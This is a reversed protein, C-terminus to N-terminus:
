GGAQARGQGAERIMRWVRGPTFPMQPNEVGFAALADAVANTVAALSGAVGAEGCGKTGLPNNLSPVPVFFTDIFPLDDARPLAYDMFSGTLPQGDADFVMREMLVQGIGQAVGGHVQGEVLLPNVINGFDDAAAYRVIEIKGTEPDLEIEVVHVGNPFSRGALKHRAAVDVLDERGRRRAEAVVELLPVFRNGAALRFGGDEFRLAEETSELLEAAIPRLGELLRDTATVIAAGEATLSRSGGTGGGRPIIDSDGMVVRIRDIDIGLRESVIQAFATEHGQGTSQTGVHLEVTGDEGFRIRAGESPDGLVAEIYAAVGLGRVKGRAASAAKRAAYGEVFAEAAATELLRAFDGVDYVEGGPTKWPLAERPIVNRRRIEFPDLGLRRAAEDMLREIDLNAEPRGAGRYADVPPTNTFVGRMRWLAKEVRYVGTMVRTALFTQINQGFHSNYAGLDCIGDVRYALLRGEADFAGEVTAVIGRGGTDSLFAESRSAQWRVPAGLKRAAYAVLYYEPFTFIKMGFGGGVDPTVVHVREAEWGFFDAIDERIRWVGQSGLTIELREGGAIPRAWAGRTELPVPSVRHDEVELRIRHAAEAFAAEVAEADGLAWDFALNDPAEEHLPEGGPALTVHAPLEDIELLVAEAGDAAAEPTDAVVAAVIEGVHRVREEAMVPRRPRASPTGDRNDVTFIAPIANNMGDAALDAATFVGRVGPMARAAEIDIEGIRGHAVPSRVFAVHLAERPALDDAYRGRGTLFRSDERRRVPQSTGFKM